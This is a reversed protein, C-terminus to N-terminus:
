FCFNLFPLNCYYKPEEMMKLILDLCADSSKSVGADTSEDSDYTSEDTSEDTSAEGTDSDGATVVAHLLSWNREWAKVHDDVSRQIYPRAAQTKVTRNLEKPM